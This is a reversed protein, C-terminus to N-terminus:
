KGGKVYIYFQASPKQKAYFTLLKTSKDWTTFNVRQFNTTETPTPLINSGSPAIAMELYDNYGEQLTKQATYYSAGSVSTTGASWDSSAPGPIRNWQIEDQINPDLDLISNVQNITDLLKDLVSFLLGEQKLRYLSIYVETDGARLSGEAITATESDMLRVFKECKESSDGPDVYLRYGCIYYKTVSQQGTPITFEDVTSVDQQIRRGEKTIIVGDSVRLTNADPIEYNFQNGVRLICTQPGIFGTYFDADQQAYVAPNGNGNILTAM